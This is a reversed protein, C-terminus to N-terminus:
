LANRMGNDFGLEYVKRFAYLLEEEFMPDFGLKLIEASATSAVLNRHELIKKYADNIDELM